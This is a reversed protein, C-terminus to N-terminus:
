SLGRMHIEKSLSLVSFERGGASPDEVHINRLWFSFIHM